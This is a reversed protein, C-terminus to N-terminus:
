SPIPVAGPGSSRGQAAAGEGPSSPDAEPQAVGRSRDRAAHHRTGGLRHRSGAPATGVVRGGLGRRPHLRPQADQGVLHPTSGRSRHLRADVRLPDLALHGAGHQGADTPARAPLRPPQSHPLGLRGGGEGAQRLGAGAGLADAVPGPPCDDDVRAIRDGPHHEGPQRGIVAVIVILLALDPIVLFFDTFRMIAGGFKRYYGAILGLTGGVVLAIFAAAFGVILSVRSGYVLASFVDKGGDDTGLWHLASPAQYIDMSPSGFSQRVPRIPRDAAAFIAVIVTLLIMAVGVIGMPSLRFRRM